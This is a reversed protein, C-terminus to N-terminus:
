KGSTVPAKAADNIQSVQSEVYELLDMYWPVLNTPVEWDKLMDHIWKVQEGNFEIKDKKDQIAKNLENQVKAWTRQILREKIGNKYHSNVASRILYETVNRNVSFYNDAARDAPKVIYDLNLDLTVAMARDRKRDRIAKISSKM